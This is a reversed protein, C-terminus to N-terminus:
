VGPVPLSRWYLFGDTNNRLTVTMRDISLAGMLTNLVCLGTPYIHERGHPLGPVARREDPTLAAFRSLQAAALARDFTYTDPVPSAAPLGLAIDKLASGTGGVLLWERPAPAPWAIGRVADEAIALAQPVDDPAAVPHLTHLRSAGMQVSRAFTIDGGQGLVVEASGGGIDIVGTEGPHHLASVAGLYSFLAEMEGSIVWMELGTQGRVVDALESTNRADRAASTALLYVDQAGAARAQDILMRASQAARAIAAPRLMHQGDLGQYLQTEVRGRVPNTLALGDDATLMRTSNSGLIVVGTRNESM